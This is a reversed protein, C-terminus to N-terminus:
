LFMYKGYVRFVAFLEIFQLLFKRNIQRFDTMKLCYNTAFYLDGFDPKIIQYWVVAFVTLNARISLNTSCTRRDYDPYVQYNEENKNALLFSPNGSV